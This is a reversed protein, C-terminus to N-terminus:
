VPAQFICLTSTERSLLHGPAGTPERSRGRPTTHVGAGEVNRPTYGALSSAGGEVDKEGKRLKEEKLYETYYIM